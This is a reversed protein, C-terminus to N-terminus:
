LCKLLVARKGRELQFSGLSEGAASHLELTMTRGDTRGAYKVRQPPEEGGERVPGGERVLTGAVDFRGEADVALPSDVTGHACDFEVTGGSDTVTLRVHEGGWAGTPVRDLDGGTSCMVLLVAPWAGTIPKM